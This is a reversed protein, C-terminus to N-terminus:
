CRDPRAVLAGVTRAVMAPALKLTTREHAGFILLVADGDYECHVETGDPVEVWTYTSLDDDTRFTTM